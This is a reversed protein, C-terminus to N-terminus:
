TMREHFARMFPHSSEIVSENVSGRRSDGGTLM